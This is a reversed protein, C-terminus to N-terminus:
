NVYIKFLETFLKFDAKSREHNRAWATIIVAHKLLRSLKNKRPTIERILTTIGEGLYNYVKYVKGQGMFLEVTFYLWIPRANLSIKLQM